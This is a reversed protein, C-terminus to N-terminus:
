DCPGGNGNAPQAALHPYDVEAYVQLALSIVASKSRRTHAAIRELLKVTPQDLLYGVKIKDAM